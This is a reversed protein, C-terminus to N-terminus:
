SVVLIQQIGAPRSLIIQQRGLFRRHVVDEEFAQTQFLGLANDQLSAGTRRAGTVIAPAPAPIENPARTFRRADSM